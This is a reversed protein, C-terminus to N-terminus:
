ATRAQKARERKLRNRVISSVEVATFFRMGTGRYVFNCFEYTETEPDPELKGRGPDDLVPWPDHVVRGFQGVAMHRVGATSVGGILHFADMGAARLDLCTTEYAAGPVNFFLATLDWQALWSRLTAVYGEHHQWEDAFNPVQSPPMEFISAVCASVCDGFLGDDPSHITSSMYVPKM